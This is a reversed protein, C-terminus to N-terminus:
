RWDGMLVFPAWFFPHNYEPNRLLALQANQMAEAKSKGAALNKYFEAMLASTSDDAVSWLSAVVSAAGATAFSEALSTIEGGDPNREGLATQCASLTVLDLRSLNLGWVESISLQAEEPKVSHALQIYSNEPAAPNLFGHTAFHWIRKNFNKADLLTSKTAATGSVVDAPAFVKAINQVEQLAFPLDAGQPNGMAMMGEGRKAADPPNLAKLADAAALYVVKKDEIFFRLKGNQNKALAHIPLYYLLQTPIFAINQKAALEGEIPAILL